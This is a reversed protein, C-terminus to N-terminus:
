KTVECGPLVKTKLGKLTIYAGMVIYLSVLGEDSLSFATSSGCNRIPHNQTRVSTSGDVYKFVLMNRDAEVGYILTKRNHGRFMVGDRYTTVSPRKERMKKLEKDYTGNLECEDLIAKVIKSSYLRAKKM